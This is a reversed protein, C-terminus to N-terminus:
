RQPPLTQPLLPPPAQKPLPKMSLLVEKSEPDAKLVRVRVSGGRIAQKSDLFTDPLEDMPCWGIVYKTDALSPVVKVFVGGAYSKVVMDDVVGTIWMGPPKKKLAVIANIDPDGHKERPPRQLDGSRRTLYWINDRVELVRATVTKGLPAETPFGDRLECAELLGKKEEGMDVWFALAGRGEPDMERFIANGRHRKITGRLTSGVELDTFRKSLRDGEAVAGAKAEAGAETSRGDLETRPRQKQPRRKAPRGDSGAAPAEAGRGDSGTASAMAEAPREDFETRPREDLETRPRRKQPQRKAPRGDSGAVVEARPQRNQQQRREPRSDSGMAESRVEQRQKAARTDRVAMMDAAWKPPVARAEPPRQAADAATATATAQSAWPEPVTRAQPGVHPGASTSV